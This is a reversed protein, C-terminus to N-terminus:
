GVDGQELGLVSISPEHQPLSDSAIRRNGEGHLQLPRHLGDLDFANRLMGDEVGVGKIRCLATACVAGPVEKPEAEEAVGNRGLLDRLIEAAVKGGRRYHRHAWLLSLLYDRLPMTRFDRRDSTAGGSRTLFGHETQDSERAFRRGPVPSDPGAGPRYARSKAFGDRQESGIEHPPDDSLM